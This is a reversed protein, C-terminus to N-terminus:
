QTRRGDKLSRTQREERGSWDGTMLVLERHTIEEVSWGAFNDDRRWAPACGETFLMLTVETLHVVGLGPAVRVEATRM